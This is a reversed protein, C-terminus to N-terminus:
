WGEKVNDVSGVVAGPARWCGGTIVGLGITDSDAERRVLDPLDAVRRRVGESPTPPGRGGPTVLKVGVIAWSLAACAAMALDADALEEAEPPLM